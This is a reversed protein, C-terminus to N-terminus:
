QKHKAEFALLQRKIQIFDGETAGNYGGLGSMSVVRHCPILLPFPNDRCANGVARPASGIKRALASYSITEGFPIRCLEAWVKNRFQTGQKLLKLEIPEQLNLVFRYLQQGLENQFPQTSDETFDWDTKSIVGSQSTVALKGAPTKLYLIEEDGVCSEVWQIVISM